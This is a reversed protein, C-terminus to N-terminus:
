GNAITLGEHAIEITEVAVENGDSKLDTGTIKTPWANELTWTMTPSGTEDLLKITVPIREITNLKIQSYWDWFKNDNVFTGKKMTVNGSKIMGPMKITSFKPSNGHRYEIPQSETDLGSVEQFAIDTQDGWDVMFYFKPLPWNSDQAEGAM